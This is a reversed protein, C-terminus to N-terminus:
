DEVLDELDAVVMELAKITGRMFAARETHTTGELRETAENLVDRYKGM